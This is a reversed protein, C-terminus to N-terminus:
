RHANENLDLLMKVLMLCLVPILLAPLTIYSLHAMDALTLRPFYRGMFGKKILYM